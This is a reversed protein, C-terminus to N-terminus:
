DVEVWGGFDSLHYKLSVAQRERREKRRYVTEKSEDQCRVLPGAFVISKAGDLNGDHVLSRRASIFLPVCEEDGLDLNRAVKLSAAQIDHGLYPALLSQCKCLAKTLAPRVKGLACGHLDYLSLNIHVM